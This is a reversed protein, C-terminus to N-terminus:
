GHNVLRDVMRVSADWQVHKQPRGDITRPGPEAKHRPLEASRERCRPHNSSKFPEPRPVSPLHDRLVNGGSHKKAIQINRDEGPNPSHVNSLQRSVSRGNNITPIARCDGACEGLGDGVAGGHGM